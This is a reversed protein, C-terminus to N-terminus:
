GCLRRVEAMVEGAERPTLSDRLMMQIGRGGLERCIKFAGRADTFVQVLRGADLIRQLLDPWDEAQPQGDGPIWQIGRLNEITFMSDLHAIQGVGDLHYFPYEIHECCAELDPMVFRDFMEPSIMYSADSQLMYTTGKAWTPAWAVRGHCHPAIIRDVADFAEIWCETIRRCADEVLSPRDVLEMMLPESGVLSALIDLNGGIDTHGIQVTEGFREAAAETLELMKAWWPSSDNFSIELTGLDAGAPPEFWVTEATSRLRAGLPEALLGAGFNVFWFPFSDAPFHRGSQLRQYNDLILDVPADLGYNSLFGSHGPVKPAGPPDYVSTFYVLPRDLEHDWWQQYTQEIRQWDEPLFRIDSM